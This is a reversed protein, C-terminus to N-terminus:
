KDERLTNDMDQQDQADPEDEISAVERLYKEAKDNLIQNEGAGDGETGGPSPNSANGTEAPLMKGPQSSINQKSLMAMKQPPLYFIIGNPM